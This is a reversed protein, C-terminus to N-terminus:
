ERGMPRRAASGQNSKVEAMAERWWAAIRARYRIYLGVFVVLLIVLPLFGAVAAAPGIGKAPHRGALGPLVGVIAIVPPLLTRIAAKAGAMEPPLMTDTSSFVPPPGQVVSLAAGAVAALASPVLLAAGVGAAKSDGGTIAYAVVLGVACVLLMLVISPGVTRLLLVGQESRYSDTRDPHDLEQAMPEVADLGAIYLALGAVFVLPTTGRFVAVMAAGAAAGCVALRAFRLGPFRLIGHWGRRWVPLWRRRPRGRGPTGSGAAATVALARPMRIWPKQRPLEQSLQRRLVIVTRLDRLTAAFRIQGVLTARRESAEISTGGVVYLGAGVALVCVVAGILGTPRFKLPWLAVEGLFTAPSTTTRALLDALSWGAVALAALSGWRSGFRRGSALLALGYGALVALAGVAAGCVLWALVEGPLRRWALLGGIGGVVIGIAAGFRLQRIAPGRLALARDVPSLLVHRVEAAEIVLPGGRGGSRLGIALIVGIAMGVVPAGHATVRAAEAASVKTDGVVGSLLWIALGSLVGTLYAKYFAEGFDHDSTRQHRRADRLDALVKTPTNDVSGPEGADLSGPHAVAV